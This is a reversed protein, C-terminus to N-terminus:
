RSTDAKLDALIRDAIVESVDHGVHDTDAFFYLPGFGNERAHRRLPGAFESALDAKFCCTDHRLWFHTARRSREAVGMLYLDLYDIQDWLETAGTQEWDGLDGGKRLYNPLTGAVSYSHTIRPEFAAVLTTTWGGGSLGAMAIRSYGRSATLHDLAVVVPDVFYRLPSGNAPKIKGLEDHTPSHPNDPNRNEGSFPMSLLLLDCDVAAVRHLLKRAGDPFFFITKTYPDGEQAVFGHGHGAHYIFLCGTGGAAIQAYIARSPVTGASQYDLWRVSSPTRGMISVIDHGFRSEAVQRAAPPETGWLVSKVKERWALANGPTSVRLRNIPGNASEEAPTPDPVEVIQAWGSASALLVALWAAAAVLTALAGNYM